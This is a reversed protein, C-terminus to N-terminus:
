AESTLYAVTADDSPKYRPWRRGEPDSAEIRRVQHIVEHPGDGSLIDLLGRWDTIHFPEVIRAAGDTLVAARRVDKLAISGVIAHEAPERLAGALWYGELTNRVRRQAAILDHIRETHEGTGIHQHHSARSEAVAVADISNDTVVQLGSHCDFVITTDSLVLYDWASEHEHVIAVTASPTGPHVLDCTAAHSIAVERIAQALCDRLSAASILEHLIAAGLQRVYWRVGHICGTSMDEPSTVGDLVIVATPTAIVWDQNHGDGDASLVTAHITKAQIWRKKPDRDIQALQPETPPPSRGSAPRRSRPRPRTLGRLRSQTATHRPRRAPTQM